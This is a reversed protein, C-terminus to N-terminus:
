GENKHNLYSTIEIILDVGLKKSLDFFEKSEITPDYEMIKQINPIINQYSYDVFPKIGFNKQEEIELINTLESLDTKLQMCKDFGYGQLNNLREYYYTLVDILM